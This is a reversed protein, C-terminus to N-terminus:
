IINIFTVKNKVTTSHDIYTNGWSTFADAMFKNVRYMQKMEVQNYVEGLRDYWDSLHFITKSLEESQEIFAESAQKINDHLNIYTSIFDPMQYSFKWNDSAAVNAKGSSNMYQYVKTQEKQKEYEKRKEKFEKHDKITLFDYLYQSGRLAKNRLVSTLFMTFYKEKSKIARETLKKASMILPPIVQDSYMKCFYKRLNQFDVDRRRVEFGLPQLNVKYSAYSFSFLGGKKVLGDTVTVKIDRIRTMSIFTQEQKIKVFKVANKSMHPEVVQPSNSAHPINHENEKPSPEMDHSKEEESTANSPSSDNPDSLHSGSRQRNAHNPEVPYLKQFENVMDMLEILAWEDINLGDDKFDAMFEAFKAKDYGANSINEILYQQKRIKDEEENDFTGLLSMRTQFTSM